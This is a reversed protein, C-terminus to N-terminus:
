VEILIPTMLWISPEKWYSSAIENRNRFLHCKKNILKYITKIKCHNIKELIKKKFIQPMWRIHCKTVDTTPILCHQWVHIM